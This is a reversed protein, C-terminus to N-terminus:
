HRADLYEKIMQAKNERGMLSYYSQWDELKMLKVPYGDVEVTEAISSQDFKCPYAKGDKVIVFGGMVDLDVGGINFELFVKTQYRPTRERQSFSGKSMLLKKVKEGDKEEITFDLDHFDTVIGKFYLLCSAGLGYLIGNQDFLKATEKLVNLKDKIEM